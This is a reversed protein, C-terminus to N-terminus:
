CLGVLINTQLWIVSNANESLSNIIQFLAVLPLIM